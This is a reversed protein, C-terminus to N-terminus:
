EMRGDTSHGDRGGGRGEGDSGVRMRARFIFLAFTFAIIYLKGCATKEGKTKEALTFLICSCKQKAYSKWYKKGEKKSAVAAALASKGLFFVHPNVCPM